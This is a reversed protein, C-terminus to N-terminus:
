YDLSDNPTIPFGPMPYESLSKYIKEFAAGYGDSDIVTGKIWGVDINTVQIIDPSYMRIELQKKKTEWDPYKREGLALSCHQLANQYEAKSQVWRFINMVGKKINLQNGPLSDRVGDYFDEEILM